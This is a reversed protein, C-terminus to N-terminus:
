VTYRKIVEEDVEIGLGPKTPVSIFGNKLELKERALGDRWPNESQDLELWPTDTPLGFHPEHILSLLHVTAAILVDGGWCHPICRIGALSAMESIFLVEGLGGCLSLDPQIIDVAQRDILQKAAARSELVEGGALPLPMKKRLDEYGVYMPSQPLPEEFFTVELDNLVHAMRLASDSTYAGNGDVMLRIDPGVLERVAAAVKAERSVSYRGLRMKMATHGLAKMKAASAPYHEEIEVGETYEMASVYVPVRSRLRGGFLESLPVNLVKGRLDNLATEIAGVALANGFNAGWLERWLRRYALPNQGILRPALQDDITARAGAIFATEGWGVLGADTELKVMLLERTKSLPVSVSAGFPRKLQHRLRYTKVATIKVKPLGSSEDADQASSM